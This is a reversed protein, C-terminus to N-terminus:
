RAAGNPSTPETEDLRLRIFALLGRLLARDRPTMQAFEDDSMRDLYSIYRPDGDSVFVVSAGHRPPYFTMEKNM